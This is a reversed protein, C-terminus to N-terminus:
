ELPAWGIHINDQLWCVLYKTSLRCLCLFSISLNRQLLFKIGVKLWGGVNTAKNGCWPHFKVILLYVREEGVEAGGGTVVVKDNCLSLM